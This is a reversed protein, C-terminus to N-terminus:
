TSPSCDPLADDRGMASMNGVIHVEVWFCGRNDTLIKECVVCHQLLGDKPGAVHNLNAGAKM